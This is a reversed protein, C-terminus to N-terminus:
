GRQVLYLILGGVLSGGFGFSAPMVWDWLKSNQGTHVSVTAFSSTLTKDVLTVREELSNHRAWLNELSRETYKRSEELGVLRGLFENVKAIGEKLDSVDRSWAALLHQADPSLDIESV